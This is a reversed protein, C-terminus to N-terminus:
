FCGWGVCVYFAFVSSSAVGLWEGGGPVEVELASSVPYHDYVHEFGKYFSNEGMAYELLYADEEAESLSVGDKKDADCLDCHLKLTATLGM